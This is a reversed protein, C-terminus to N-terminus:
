HQRDQWSNRIRITWFGPPPHPQFNRERQSLKPRLETSRNASTRSSKIPGESPQHKSTWWGDDPGLIGGLIAPPRDPDVVDVVKMLFTPPEPALVCDDDVGLPPLEAGVVVAYLPMTGGGLSALPFIM